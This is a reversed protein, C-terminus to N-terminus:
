IKLYMTPEREQNYKMFAHVFSLIYTYKCLYMMHMCSGPKINLQVAYKRQVQTYFELADKYKKEQFLKNGYNRHQTSKEPSKLHLKECSEM